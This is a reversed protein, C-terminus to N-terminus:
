FKKQKIIPGTDCGEEIKHITIGARREGNIIAWVHPTRGRYKPLLSGHVNISMLDAHKIIDNNIIFLYNISVFIININKIFHYANQLEQIVM